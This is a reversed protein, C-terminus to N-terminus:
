RRNAETALAPDFQRTQKRSVVLYEYGHQKLWVLNAETAIGADMVVTGGAVPHGLAVAGLQALLTALTSAESVNGEFLRSRKPFGSIDLALGLTVLPCVSRKEKSRGRKAKGIGAAVGEFYTHTLDFLTITETLGFWTHAAGFLHAELADRHKLLHDASRYLRQLEMGEYDYGILEGLASSQQLGAYTALESLPAAMRGVMNGLAAAIQPRNLGLAALREEFGLQRVAALAVQEVGVTRPRVQELTALDVEVFRAAGAGTADLCPSGSTADLCPSGSSATPTAVKRVLVAAEPQRALLQAAYRQALTEATDSLTSPGLGTALRPSGRALLSGQGHLLQEIRAALAPWEAQKVDFQSGLNLLTRQKVAKGVRITEVLRHTYYAEGSVRNRTQTRRIFM